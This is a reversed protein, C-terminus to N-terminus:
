YSSCSGLLLLIQGAVELSGGSLIVRSLVGFGGCFQLVEHAFSGFAKFDM